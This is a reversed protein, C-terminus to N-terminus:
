YAGDTGSGDRAGAFPKSYETQCQAGFLDLLLAPGNERQRSALPGSAGDRDRLGVARMSDGHDKRDCGSQGLHAAHHGNTESEELRLRLHDDQCPLRGSFFRETAGWM